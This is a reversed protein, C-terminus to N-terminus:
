GERGAPRRADGPGRSAEGDRRRGGQLPWALLEPPGRGARRTAESVADQAVRAADQRGPEEYRENREPEQPNLISRTAPRKRPAPLDPRSAAFPATGSGVSSFATAEPARSSPLM